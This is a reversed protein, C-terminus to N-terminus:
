GQVKLLSPARYINVSHSQYAKGIEKYINLWKLCSATTKEQPCGRLNFSHISTSHIFSQLDKKGLGDTPASFVCGTGEVMLKGLPRAYIADAAEVAKKPRHQFGIMACTATCPM